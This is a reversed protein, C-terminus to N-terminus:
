QRGEAGAADLAVALEAERGAVEGDLKARLAAALGRGVAPGEPVGAAMLDDGSIELAVWRWESLYTDLWKAGLAGALVLDAPSRGRAAEVGASASAPILTALERASETPGRTAALVAAPRPVLNKWPERGLLGVVRDILEGAGPDLDVLGWADLREFGARPNPEAALKGLEAAVRDASVTSLDTERLLRLTTPEPQLGLRGAYRAARLARTPDDVFSREHLVRLLGARLDDVGDHPDALAGPDALPVAMANITFDRRALDEDLGAPRVEPLAGPRPYVEARAHAVDIVGDPLSVALTEFRDHARLEGGLGEALPRPDGVVVVDLNGTEIGLLADRIAGGVLYAEAGVDDAADRIASFGRLGAIREGLGTADIERKAAMRGPATPRKGVM